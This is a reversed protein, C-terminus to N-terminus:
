RALLPVRVSSKQIFLFIQRGYAVTEVYTLILVSTPRGDVNAGHRVTTHKWPIIEVACTWFPGSIEGFCSRRRASFFIPTQNSNRVYLFATLFRIEVVSNVQLPFIDDHFRFLHWYHTRIARPEFSAFWKTKFLRKIKPLPTAFTRLM